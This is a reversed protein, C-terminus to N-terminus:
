TVFTIDVARTFKTNSLVSFIMRKKLIFAHWCTAANTACPGAYLLACTGLINGVVLCWLLLGVGLWSRGTELVPHGNKVHGRQATKKDIRPTVNFLKETGLSYNTWLHSATTKAGVRLTHSCPRTRIDKHQHESALARQRPPHPGHFWWRPARHDRCGATCVAGGSVPM